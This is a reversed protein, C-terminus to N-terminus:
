GRRISYYLLRLSRVSVSNRLGVVQRGVLREVKSSKLLRKAELLYMFELNYHKLIILLNTRKFFCTLPYPQPKLQAVVIATPKYCQPLPRHGRLADPSRQDYREENTSFTIYENRKENGM